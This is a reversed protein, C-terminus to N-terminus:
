SSKFSKSEDLRYVHRFSWCNSKSEWAFSTWAGRNQRSDWSTKVKRLVLSGIEHNKTFYWESILHKKTLYFRFHKSSSFRLQNGESYIGLIALQLLSRSPKALCKNYLKLQWFWAQKGRIYREIRLLYCEVPKLRRRGASNWPCVKLYSRNLM